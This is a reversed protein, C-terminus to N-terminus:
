DATTVAARAWLAHDEGCSIVTGDKLCVSGGKGPGHNGVRDAFIPDGTKLRPFPLGPGRYDIDTGEAKVPCFPAFDIQQKTPWLKYNAIFARGHGAAEWKPSDLLEGSRVAIYLSRLSAACMTVDARSRMAALQVGVLAAVAVLALAGAILPAKPLPRGM